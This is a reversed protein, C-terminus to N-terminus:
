NMKVKYLRMKSGSPPVVIYSSTAGTATVPPGLNTWTANTLASKYCVQYVKGTVSNWSLKMQGNTPTLKVIPNTSTNGVILTLAMSNNTEVVEGIRNVDDVIAFVTNTGATALWNSSGTPGDNATLLMTQGAAISATTVWSTAAGGNVYFGVGVFTNSPTAVTGQNKV